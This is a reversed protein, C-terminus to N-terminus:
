CQFGKANKLVNPIIETPNELPHYIALDGQAVRWILIVIETLLVKRFKAITMKQWAIRINQRSIIINNSKGNFLIGKKLYRKVIQCIKIYM